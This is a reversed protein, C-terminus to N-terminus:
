WSRRAEGHDEAIHPPPWKWEQIKLAKHPCLIKLASALFEMNVLLGFYGRGGSTPTLDIASDTNATLFTLHQGAPWLDASPSVASRPELLARSMLSGM